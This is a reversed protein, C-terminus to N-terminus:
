REWTELSDEGITRLEETNRAKGVRANFDGCAVVLKNARWGGRGMENDLTDYFIEKTELNHMAHPAHANYIELPPKTHFCGKIIRGNIQRIDRKLKEM